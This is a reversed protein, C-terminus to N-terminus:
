VGTVTSPTDILLYFFFETQTDVAADRAILYSLSHSLSPSLFLSLTIKNKMGVGNAEAFSPPRVEEM